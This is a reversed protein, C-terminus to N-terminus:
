IHPGIIHPAVERPVDRFNFQLEIMQANLALQTRVEPLILGLNM